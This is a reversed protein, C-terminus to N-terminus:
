CKARHRTLQFRETYDGKQPNLNVRANISTLQLDSTTIVKHSPELEGEHRCM